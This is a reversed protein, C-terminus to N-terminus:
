CHSKEEIYRIHPIGEKSQKMNLRKLSDYGKDFCLNQLIKSPAPRRRRRVIVINDLTKAASKM